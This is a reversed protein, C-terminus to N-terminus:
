TKGKDIDKDINYQIERFCDSRQPLISRSKKATRHRNHRPIALVASGGLSHGMLGIRTGDVLAYMGSASEATKVLITDTVFNIDATRTKLWKQYYRFSQLKNTKANERQTECM